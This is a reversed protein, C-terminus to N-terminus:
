FPMLLLEWATLPARPESRTGTSSHAPSEYFTVESKIALLSLASRFASAAKNREYKKGTDISDISHASHVIWTFIIKKVVFMMIKLSFYEVFNLRFKFGICSNIFDHKYTWLNSYM